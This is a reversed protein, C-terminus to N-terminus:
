LGKKGESLGGSFRLGEMECIGELRRSRDVRPDFDLYWVFFVGGAGLIYVAM